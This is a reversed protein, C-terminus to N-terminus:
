FASLVLWFSYLLEFDFCHAWFWVIGLLGEFYVFISFINFIDFIPLFRSFVDFSLLFCGFRSYSGLILPILGFRRHFPGLVRFIGLFPFFVWFILFQYFGRFFM